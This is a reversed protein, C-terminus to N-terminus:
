SDEIFLKGLTVFLAFGAASPIAYRLFGGYRDLDARACGEPDAKSWM